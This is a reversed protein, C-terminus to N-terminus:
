FTLNLGISNVMVQPYNYISASAGQEPDIWKYFKTFTLMNQGSFFVKINTAHIKSTFRKPLNYSVMLNKLRLYSADKIWLRPFTTSPNTPTWANLFVSTPKQVDPGVQGILNGGDAKVGADGQFFLTIDFNKWNASATFGYTVKPFYTGLNVKDKDDIVGDHNVDQYILDGPGVTSNLVASGKVQNANQYIGLCKYGYLSYFPTGVNYYTDGSIYPGTGKLDTVENKIYSMNGSVNINVKGIKDKYGLSLEIGKNTMAGANQYPASLSYPAAVPLVMLINNTMKNFYDLSVSLKNSLFAADIGAGSIETTEWQIDSNAGTTPALGSMLTQNFSYTQGPSVISYTPYNSIQQNGLRGWSARLKLSNVSNSISQFFDEKSILWGASLSPFAGWKKGEAFRSSGDYRLNAEFLYKEAYNYNLRGFLSQLTWVSATGTVSQGTAPAANLQSIANNLFGMRYASFYSSKSYEQSAGVLLKFNNNHISKEYDALVQLMTYMGTTNSDTLNNPGQYKTQVLPTGIPGGSYYYIDSVYQQTNSIGSRYAFSPKVHLGQVPSWNLGLNGTLTNSQIQDISPSNLWAMPSGDAVYGYAGNGWKYPVTNSIRNAQRLIQSFSTAYTSVPQTFPAYLYSLSVDVAFYKNIRTNLNFRSNYKQQDTKAVNGQQDFYGISFMYQTKDDGGSINLVHSQQYGPRSYLLKLWDTNPHAGTVDTGNKFLQIDNDSWRLSSGENALAENYLSAQQWSPLFDPKRNISQLGGYVDYSIQVHGKKGKKTTVLIVGNSARAGYIAASAADKLVSISEIDDSNVEGMSAVTGDVIVMPSTSAPSGGLGTGIGRVNITGIDAGPQGGGTTRVTVGPMKGELANIVSSEPRNM